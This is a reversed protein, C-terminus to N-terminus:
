PSSTDSNPRKLSIPSILVDEAVCLTVATARDKFSASPNGTDDKLYLRPLGLSEGLRRARYLPTGGIRLPFADGRPVVPLVPAFRFIDPRSRDFGGDLTRAAAAYDYRVDLNGGCAPCLFGDFGAPRITDCAICRYGDVFM